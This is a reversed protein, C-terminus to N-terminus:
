TNNHIFRIGCKYNILNIIVTDIPFTNNSFHVYTKSFDRSEFVFLIAVALNM